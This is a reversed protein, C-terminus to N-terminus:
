SPNAAGKSLSKLVPECIRRHAPYTFSAGEPTLAYAWRKWSAKHARIYGKKILSRLLTNTIGLAIGARQSLQRQTIDSTSEVETLVQLEKDSHSGLDPRPEVSDRQEIGSRM